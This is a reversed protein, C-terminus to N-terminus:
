GCGRDWALFRGWLSRNASAGSCCQHLRGLRGVRTGRQAVPAKSRTRGCRGLCAFWGLPCCTLTDWGCTPNPRSAQPGQLAVPLYVLRFCLSRRLAVERVWRSRQGGLVLRMQPLLPQWSGSMAKSWCCTSAGLASSCRHGDQHLHVKGVLTLSVSPMCSCPPPPDQRERAARKSEQQERARM